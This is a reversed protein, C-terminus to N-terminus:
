SIAPVLIAGVSLTGPLPKSRSAVLGLLAQSSFNYRCPPSAKAQLILSEATIETNNKEVHLGNGPWPQNKM